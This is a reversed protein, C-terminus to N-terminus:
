LYKKALALLEGEAAEGLHSIGSKIFEYAKSLDKVGATVEITPNVAVAPDAAAPQETTVPETMPKSEKTFLSILWQIIKM